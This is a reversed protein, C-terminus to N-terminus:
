DKVPLSDHSAVCHWTGGVRIWTDTFRGRRDFRTGKSSGKEHYTGTVVAVTGYVKIRFGESVLVDYHYSADKTFAMHERKTQLTGDPETIVFDDTLILKLAAPDHQLEAQNWANELALIQGEDGKHANQCLADGVPAACIAIVLWVWGAVRFKSVKRM